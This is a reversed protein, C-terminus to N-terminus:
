LAASVLMETFEGGIRDLMKGLREGKEARDAFFNVARDIVNLVKDKQAQQFFGKSKLAAADIEM